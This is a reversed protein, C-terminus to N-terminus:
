NHLFLTVKETLETLKLTAGVSLITVGIM